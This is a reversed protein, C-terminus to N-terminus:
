LRINCEELFENLDNVASKVEAFLLALEDAQDRTLVVKGTVDQMDPKYTALNQMDERTVTGIHDAHTIPDKM